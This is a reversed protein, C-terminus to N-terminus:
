TDGKPNQGSASCLRNLMAEIRELRADITTLRDTLLGVRQSLNRNDELLAMQQVIRNAVIELEVLQFPKALYDFAGLRISEIATEMSSYGTMVVVYSHPCRSRVTKLIEIGGPGPPMMLDTFIIDFQHGAELLRIAETGSKASSVRFPRSEMFECLTLRLDADDDVILVRTRGSLLDANTAM